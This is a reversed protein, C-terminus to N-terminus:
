AFRHGERRVPRVRLRQRQEPPELVAFWGRQAGQELHGRTLDGGVQAPLDDASRFEDRRMEPGSGPRGTMAEHRGPGGGALRVGGVVM